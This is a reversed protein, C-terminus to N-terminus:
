ALDMTGYTEGTVFGDALWAFMDLDNPCLSKWEFDEYRPNALLDFYHLRSGPHLSVVPGASSGNKFSSPCNEEWVTKSMWKQAHHLWAHTVADKPVFSVYNETQLKWLMKRIYGTVHEVSGVLSGHGLPSTPGMYVFYNPMSRVTVSLYSTPLGETWDVRLDRGHSGIIPFRPVFGMNFGTACIITDAKLKRGSSVDLGNATFNVVTDRVIECKESCLAELYGSGPTPRRCGVDFDPILLDALEPKASLRDTMMKSTMARIMNSPGSGKIYIRFRANLEQEIEKRYEFYSAPDATWAEKQEKTFIKNKGDNSGFRNALPPTIWTKSRTVVYIKEVKELISPLIQIGSSGNGILVVTKGTLDIDDRWVASHVMNGQFAARNPVSPWRWNNYAGSANIFVDCEEV